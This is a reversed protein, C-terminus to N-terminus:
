APLAAVLAEVEVDLPGEGDLVLEAHARSPAVFARHMPRVTAMWQDLVSEVSRGRESIDRRLRRILRVDDAAEVFVRLDMRARLAPDSLLLIGELIVIPRPRIGDTRATRRHTAFDYVPLEAPEGARLLDM